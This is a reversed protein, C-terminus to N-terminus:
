NILWSVGLSINTYNKIENFNLNAAMDLQVRRHVLWNFGFDFSCEPTQWRTFSNYSEVFVGFNDTVCFGFCVAVFTSPVPSFGDWYCGVDYGLGFWDTITNSFLLHMSPALHAPCFAKTGLHPAVVNALFSISPLYKSGEYVKIKTGFNLPTVGWVDYDVLRDRFYQFDMGLRIEAFNTLGYRLLTNNITFTEQKEGGRHEWDFAVGTEWQVKHLPMIDTGTSMGPRDASITSEDNQSFVGISITMLLVLCFFRNM